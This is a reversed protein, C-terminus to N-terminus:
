VGFLVPNTEIPGEIKLSNLIAAMPSNSIQEAKLEGAQAASSM